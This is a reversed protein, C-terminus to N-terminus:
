DSVVPSRSSEDPEAPFPFAPLERYHGEGMLENPSEQHPSLDASGRNSGPENQSIVPTPEKSVDNSWYLSGYENYPHPTSTDLSGSGNTHSMQAPGGVIPNGKSSMPLTQQQNHQRLVCLATTISIIVVTGLSIGVGIGIKAGLSLGRASAAAAPAAASANYAPLAVADSWLGNPGLYLQNITGNSYYYLWSESSPQNFAAALSANAADPLPWLKADQQPMMRWVFNICSVQQLTGNTGIYFVNRTYQGDITVGLAGPAGSWAPLTFNQGM